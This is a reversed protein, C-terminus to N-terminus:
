KLRWYLTIAQQAKLFDESSIHYRAIALCLRRRTTNM